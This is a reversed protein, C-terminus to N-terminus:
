NGKLGLGLETLVWLGIKGLNEFIGTWSEIQAGFAASMVVGGLIAIVLAVAIAIPFSRNIERGLSDRNAGDASVFAVVGYFLVACGSLFIIARVWWPTWSFLM